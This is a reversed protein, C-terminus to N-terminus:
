LIHHGNRVLSFHFHVNQILFFPNQVKASLSLMQQLKLYGRTFSEHALFQKHLKILFLVCVATVFMVIIRMNSFCFRKVQRKTHKSM